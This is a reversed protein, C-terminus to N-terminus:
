EVSTVARTKLKGSVEEHVLIPAVVVDLTDNLAPSGLINKIEELRDKGAYIEDLILLAKNQMNDSKVRPERGSIIMEEALEIAYNVLEFSSKFKRKIQENTLNIKPLKDM